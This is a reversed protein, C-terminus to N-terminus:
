KRNRRILLIASGLLLGGPLVYLLFYQMITATKASITFKRDPSMKENVYLPFENYMVWSYFSLGQHNSPFRMRGMFDTDTIVMIRQEKNNLRRTLKAGMVYSEKKVDGEFPAYVPAASDVVLNGKKIWINEKVPTSLVPEFSFGPSPDFNIHSAGVLDAKTTNMKERLSKEFEPERALQLGAHTFQGPIIHPMEHPNVFVITGDEVDVGIDKLVPDLIFKKGPETFFIANGGGAIYKRIRELEIENYPSLPAAVVLVDVNGPVDQHLLSITDTDFGKNIAARRDMRATLHDGFDRNDHGFPKVEYHGSLFSVSVPKERLLRKLSAGVIQQDPWVMDDALTRLTEKKGKYEMHMMLSLNNEELDAIKRVEDLPLFKSSSTNFIDSQIDVIQELTKGPFYRYVSSDTNTHGYYYVYEFEINPYFRMYPEWFKWIYNNRVQPLGHSANPGLLNTYLTVKLPSGDLQGLIKQVATDITNTQISVVDKYRVNGPKSSFYVLALFVVFLAIYRVALRFGQISRQTSILRFYTFGLFLCIVFVFYLIDRSTILGGIMSEAKGSICLYWTLERVFDYQQWVSRLNEMVFFVAFTIVAAVIPYRTLSSIFIGIAAYTNMLLFFGLLMSLLWEPEPNILMFMGFVFFILMALLMVFNIIFVALFKGLVVDRMKVPSSYLLFHTNSNQERNIVGMTLLPIFFYILRLVSGSVPMFIFKTMGLYFGEFKGQLLEMQTEQLTTLTVTMVTFRLAILVYFAIIVFWAIPSFFLNRLEAQAVRIMKNM